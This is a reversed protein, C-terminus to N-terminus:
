FVQHFHLDIDITESGIVHYPTNDAYFLTSNVFSSTVTANDMIVKYICIKDDRKIKLFFPKDCEVCAFDYFIVGCYGCKEDIIPAGCQPCTLAGKAKVGNRYRSRIDEM